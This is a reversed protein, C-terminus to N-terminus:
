SKISYLKVKNLFSKLKSVKADKTANQFIWEDELVDAAPVSEATPVSEAIPVSATEETKENYDEPSDTEEETIEEFVLSEEDYNNLGLEKELEEIKHKIIIQNPDQELIKKYVELAKEKYGQSQLLEGMTMTSINTLIKEPNEEEKITSFAQSIRKEEFGFGSEQGIDDIIKFNVNTQFTPQSSFPPPSIEKEEAIEECEKIQEPEKKAEEEIAAKAEKDRPNLYLVMNFTKLANSKDGVLSYSQALLKQALYNDPVESIVKEFEKIAATYLGKDFYCRALAVIGSLFNPHYELGEKCIEIAEDVLGSKRYTEALPAFVRSRPNEQYEKLYKELYPDYKPIM